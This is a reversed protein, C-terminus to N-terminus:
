IRFVNITLYVPMKAKFPPAHYKAFNFHNTHFTLGSSSEVISVTFLQVQNKAPVLIQAAAQQNVEIKASFHFDKCCGVPM